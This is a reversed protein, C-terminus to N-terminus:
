AKPGQYPTPTRSAKAKNTAQEKAAPKKASAAAPKKGKLKAALEKVFLANNEEFAKINREASALRPGFATGDVKAIVKDLQEQQGQLRKLDGPVCDSYGDIVRQRAAVLDALIDKRSTEKFAQKWIDMAAVLNDHAGNLRHYEEGLDTIPKKADGTAEAEGDAKEGVPVVRADPKPETEKAM